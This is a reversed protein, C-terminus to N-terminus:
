AEGLLGETGPPGRTQEGLWVFSEAKQVYWLVESLDPLNM